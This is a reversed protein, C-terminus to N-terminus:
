KLIKALAKADDTASKADEKLIWGDQELGHLSHNAQSIYTGQNPYLSALTAPPFPVQWACLAVGTNYTAAPVDVQYSRVGGLVNGYADTM